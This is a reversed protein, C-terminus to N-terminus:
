IDEMSFNTLELWSSAVASARRVGDTDQCQTSLIEYKQVVESWARLLAQVALLGHLRLGYSVNHAPNRPNLREVVCLREQAISLPNGTTLVTREMAKLNMGCAGVVGFM